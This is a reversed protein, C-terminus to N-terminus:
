DKASQPPSTRGKRSPPRLDIRWEIAQEPTIGNEEISSLLDEHRPLGMVLRYTALRDRLRPWTGEERSMTLMPVVRRVKLPEDCKDFVWCPSLDNAPDVGAALEFMQAWPDGAHAPGSDRLGKLGIGSAVNARVAHGKYRHVRGERQELEVPSHPLNWHVVVHCWPHFDLGEQGISTSALMFPRFPSNFAGRVQDLRTVAGDSEKIEAFRLAHRSRFRLGGRSTASDRRRRRRDLGEVDLSARRIGLAAHLPGSLEDIKTAVKKDSMSLAEFDFHLQEDLLAQLNGDLCYALAQRWYAKQRPYLLQVAVMADHHNFLSQLGRAIRFASRRVLAQSSDEPFFRRLARMACIGPAGLALRALVNPLNAPRPGLPYTGDLTSAIAQRLPWEDPSRVDSAFTFPDPQGLWAAIAKEGDLLLPAAWYWREDPRGGAVGRPLSKLQQAIDRAANRVLVDQPLPAGDRTALLLPDILKGIEVAPVMLALTTHAIGAEDGKRASRSLRLLDSSKGFSEHRRDLTARRKRKGARSTAFADHLRREAEYSVLSSIADPALRWETFILRKLDHPASAFVGRPRLYPLSPPVWLFYEAGPPLADAVLDRLRASPIHPRGFRRMLGFDLLLGNQAADRVVSRRRESRTAMAAKKFRYERMFELFFPASKWYEIPDHVGLLKAIRRAALAGRMDDAEPDLPPREAQMGESTGGFSTRETRTMVKRLMAQAADRAAMVHEREPPRARLARSFDALAVELRSAAGAGALFRMLGIFDDYPSADASLAQGSLRYPTASLLLVRRDSIADSLLNRALRQPLSPAEEDGHLLSAFKQFEDVIILGNKALLGASVMALKERLRGIFHRQMRLDAKTPEGERDAIEVAISRFREMLGSDELVAKQFAAVIGPDPECAKVRDLEGEWSEDKVLQLLTRLWPRRFRNYLALFILVRERISGASSQIKFSTDPTIAFYRTLGRGGDIALLTLRTARAKTGSTKKLKDLNQGAIVSNSCLYVIDFRRRHFRALTQDIVERAVITKGLGVEDAVLFRKAPTRDKWFRQVVYDATRKQFGTLTPGSM